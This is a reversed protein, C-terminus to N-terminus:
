INRLVRKYVNRWNGSLIQEVEAPNFHDHLNRVLRPLDDLTEYGEVPAALIGGFDTGLGVHSIGIKKVAYRFHDLVQDISVPKLDTAFTSIATLGIVGNADKIMKLQEDSANRVHAHLGKCNSHSNVFPVRNNQCIEAVDYIGSENLHATDVIMGLQNMHNVITVGLSTLGDVQNVRVPTALLNPRDHVLGVSRVGLRYLEELFAPSDISEAGEFHLIVGIKNERAFVDRVDTATEVIMMEHHQDVLRRYWHLQRLTAEKLTHQTAGFVESDDLFISLHVFKLYKQIMGLSTQGRIKDDSHHAAWFLDQHADIILPKTSKM